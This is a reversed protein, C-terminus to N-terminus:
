IQSVPAWGSAAYSYPTDLQQRADEGDCRIMVVFTNDATLNDGAAVCKGSGNNVIQQGIHGEKYQSIFYKIPTWEM